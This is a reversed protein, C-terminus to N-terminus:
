QATGSRDTALEDIMARWFRLSEGVAAKPVRENLGHAFSDKPNIFIGTL